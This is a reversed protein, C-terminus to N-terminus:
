NHKTNCGYLKNSGFNDFVQVFNKNESYVVSDDYSESGHLQIYGIARNRRFFYIEGQGNKFMGFFIGDYVICELIDSSPLQCGAEDGGNLIDVSERVGNLKTSLYANYRKDGKSVDSLRLILDKKPKGKKIHIDVIYKCTDKSSSKYRELDLIQTDVPIYGHQVYDSRFEFETSGSDLKQYLPVNEPFAAM